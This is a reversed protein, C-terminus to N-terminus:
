ELFLEAVDRVRDATIKGHELLLSIAFLASGVAVRRTKQLIHYRFAVLRDAEILDILEYENLEPVPM